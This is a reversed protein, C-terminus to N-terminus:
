VEYKALADFLNKKEQETMPVYNSKLGKREMDCPCFPDGWSPGMCACFNLAGSKIESLMTVVEPINLCDKIPLHEGSELREINTAIM